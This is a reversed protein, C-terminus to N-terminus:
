KGGPAVGVSRSTTCHMVITAVSDKRTVTPATGAATLEFCGCAYVDAGRCCAWLATPRTVAPLRRHCVESQQHKILRDKETIVNVLAKNVDALQALQEDSSRSADRGVAGVASRMAALEVKMREVQASQVRTLRIYWRRLATRRGVARVESMHLRAGDSMTNRLRQNEKKVAQLEAQLEAQRAV